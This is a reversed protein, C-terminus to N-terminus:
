KTEVTLKSLPTVSNLYSIFPHGGETGSWNDKIFYLAQISGPNLKVRYWNGNEPIIPVPTITGIEDSHMAIIKSSLWTDRASTMEFKNDENVENLFGLAGIEGCLYIKGTQYNQGNKTVTKM